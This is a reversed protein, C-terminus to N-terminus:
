FAFPIVGNSFCMEVLDAPWDCYQLDKGGFIFNKVIDKISENHLYCDLSCNMEVTISTKLLNWFQTDNMTATKFNESLYGGKGSAFFGAFWIKKLRSDSNISKLTTAIENIKMNMDIVTSSCLHYTLIRSGHKDPTLKDLLQKSSSNIEVLLANNVDKKFYEGWSAIDSTDRGLVKGAASYVLGFMGARYCWYNHQRSDTMMVLLIAKYVGNTLVYPTARVSFKASFALKSPSANSSLTHKFSATELEKIFNNIESPKNVNTDPSKLPGLTKNPTDLVLEDVFRRKLPTLAASDFRAHPSIISNVLTPSADLDRIDNLLYRFYFKLYLDKYKFALSM